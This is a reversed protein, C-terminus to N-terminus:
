VASTQCVLLQIRSTDVMVEDESLITPKLDVDITYLMGLKNKELKVLRKDVVSYSSFDKYISKIKNELMKNTDSSTFDEILRRTENSDTFENKASTFNTFSTIEGSSSVGVSLRDSTEIDAIKKIFQYSYVPDGAISVLEYQSLDIYQQAITVANKLCDDLTKEGSGFDTLIITELQKNERNVSFWGESYTYYDSIHLYGTEVISYWYEGVCEKGNFSIKMSGPASTDVHLNCNNESWIEYESVHVGGDSSDVAAGIELVSISTSPPETTNSYSCAAVLFCIIGLITIGFLVKKM